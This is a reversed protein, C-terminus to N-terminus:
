KNFQKKLVVTPVFTPAKFVVKGFVKPAAAPKPWAAQQKAQPRVSSAPSPGSTSSSTPGSSYQTGDFKVEVAKSAFSKEEGMTEEGRKLERELKQTTKAAEDMKDMHQFRERLSKLYLDAGTPRKRFVRREAKSMEPDGPKRYSVRGQFGTPAVLMDVTEPEPMVADRGFLYIAAENRRALEGDRQAREFLEENMVVPPNDLPSPGVLEGHHDMM